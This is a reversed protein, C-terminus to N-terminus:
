LAKCFLVTARFTGDAQLSYDPIRGAEQWGMSRYLHEAADGANTDLTLLRRGIGRAAQEARGMLARAVGQRRAAPDVLLKAIEARHAQNQPTACDVQVTGVMAGDLWAVLLLRSGAAVDRAVKKWFGQAVTPALPPLFSVSAGSAVCDVLIRSLRREASAAGAADLAEVVLGRAPKAYRFELSKSLDDLIRISGSRVYGRKEYFAHAAAFRTDTWLVLREARAAAFAEATDLLHHAIGTGRASASVYLRRIEWANDSGLASTGIMGVAQGDQEAVWLAGSAEAFHSALARLEPLEADLDFVCGPYEAWADRILRIFADADTDRGARIM